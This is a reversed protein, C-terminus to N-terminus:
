AGYRTEGQIQKIAINFFGEVHDAYNEVVDDFVQIIQEQREADSGVTEAWVKRLAGLNQKSRTSINRESLDRCLADFVKPPIPDTAMANAIGQKGQNSEAPNKSSTKSRTRKSTEPQTRQEKYSNGSVALNDKRKRRKETGSNPFNNKSKRQKETDSVAVSNQPKTSSLKLLENTLKQFNVRHHVRPPVKKLKEELVGCSRLKQRALDVQHLGLKTEEMWQKREKWIWGDPDEGRSSWYVLQSLLLAANVDCGPLDAYIPQFAIPRGGLTLILARLKDPSSVNQQPKKAM